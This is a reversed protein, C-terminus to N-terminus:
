SGGDQDDQRQRRPVQFRLTQVANAPLEVETRWGDAELDFRVSRKLTNLLQVSLVGDPSM